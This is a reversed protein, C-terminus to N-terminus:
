AATPPCPQGPRHDSGQHSSCLYRDFATFTDLLVAVSDAYSCALCDSSGTSGLWQLGADDLSFVSGWTVTGIGDRLLNLTITIEM